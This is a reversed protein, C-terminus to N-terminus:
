TRPERPREADEKAAEERRADTRQTQRGRRDDHPGFVRASGRVAGEDLERGLSLTRQAETIQRIDAEHRHWLAEALGLDSRRLRSSDQATQAVVVLSGAGPLSM